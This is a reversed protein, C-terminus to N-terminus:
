SLTMIENIGDILLNIGSNSDSIPINSKKFSFQTTINNNRIKELQEFLNGDVVLMLNTTSEGTAQVTIIYYYGYNNTYLYRYSICTYNTDYSMSDFTIFTSM